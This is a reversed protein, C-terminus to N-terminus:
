AIAQPVIIDFSKDADVTHIKANISKVIANMEELEFKASDPGGIISFTIKVDGHHGNHVSIDVEGESGAKKFALVLSQYIL